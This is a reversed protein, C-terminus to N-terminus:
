VVSKRDTNWTAPDNFKGGDYCQLYVQDCNTGINNKLAQWYGSQEYPCLSVKFGASVCMQGFKSDLTSDYTNETDFDIADIQLASKLAQLNRYLVTSANTGDAQIRARINGFSPDTWGGVCMEIRTISSPQARCQGLLAGWNSPGVYVGNSCITGAYTFDGNAAVGMNFVVMTTMGSARLGNIQASTLGSASGMGGNCFIMATTAAMVRQPNAITQLLLLTLCALWLIKRLM